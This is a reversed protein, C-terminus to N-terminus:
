LKKKRDRGMGGENEAAKQKWELISSALSALLFARQDMRLVGQRVHM